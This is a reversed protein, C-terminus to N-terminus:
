LQSLLNVTKQCDSDLEDEPNKTECDAEEALNNSSEHMFTVSSASDGTLKELEVNKAEETQTRAHTVSYIRSVIESETDEMTKASGDVAAAAFEKKLYDM